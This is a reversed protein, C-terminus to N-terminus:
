LVNNEVERKFKLSCNPCTIAMLKSNTNWLYNCKKCKVLVM